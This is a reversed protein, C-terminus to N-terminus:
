CVSVYRGLGEGFLKQQMICALIKTIFATATGQL